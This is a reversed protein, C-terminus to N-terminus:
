SPVRPLSIHLNGNSKGICPESFVAPRVLRCGPVQDAEKLRLIFIGLDHCARRRLTGDDQLFIDSFFVDFLEKLLDIASRLCM